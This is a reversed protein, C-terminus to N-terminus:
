YKGEKLPPRFQDPAWNQLARRMGLRIAGVSKIQSVVKKLLVVLMLFVWHKLRRFLVFFRVENILCTCHQMTKLHTIHSHYFLCM